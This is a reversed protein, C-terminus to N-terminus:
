LYTLELGTSKQSMNTMDDGLCVCVCVKYMKRIELIYTHSSDWKTCGVIVESMLTGCMVRTETPDIGKVRHSAKGEPEQWVSFM